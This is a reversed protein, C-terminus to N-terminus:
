FRKEVACSGVAISDDGLQHGNFIRSGNKKSCYTPRGTQRYAQHRIHWSGTEAQYEMSDGM